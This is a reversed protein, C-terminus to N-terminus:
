KELEAIAARAADSVTQRSSPRDKEHDNLLARLQPIARRGGLKQIAEIASVRVQANSSELAVILGDLAEEGGIEGLAWPVKYDVDPDTLLPVLVPIASRDKLEGLLHVAYYRDERIQQVLPRQAPLVRANGTAVQPPWRVRDESYDSLIAVIRDFGTRDGMSAFIFAANGRIHRDPHTLFPQLEPLLRPNCSAVLERAINFQRYFVTESQFREILTAPPQAQTTLCTFAALAPLWRM